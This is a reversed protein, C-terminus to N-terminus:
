RSGLPKGELCEGIREHLFYGEMMSMTTEKCRHEAFEMIERAKVIDPKKLKTKLKSM